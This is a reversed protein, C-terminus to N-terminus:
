EEELNRLYNEFQELDILYNTETYDSYNREIRIYEIFEEIYSNM